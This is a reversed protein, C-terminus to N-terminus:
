GSGRLPTSRWEMKWSGDGPWIRRFVEGVRPELEPEEEEEEEYEYSLEEVDKKKRWAELAPPLNQSREM